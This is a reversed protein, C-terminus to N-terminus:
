KEYSLNNDSFIKLLANRLKSIDIRVNEKQPNVLLNRESDGIMFYYKLNLAKAQVIYGADHYFEPFLEFVVSNNESFIMNVLGAGHIGMILSANSFLEINEEVSQNELYYVKIGFESLLGVVEKENLLYRHTAFKRSIFIKSKRQKQTKAIKLPNYLMNIWSPMYQKQCHQYGRFNVFKWNNIFAPILLEDAQILERHSTLIIKSKDIKLLDILQNHFLKNSSLIYFDPNLGLEQILFYRGLCEILFHYYNDELSSLSLHAVKGRIKRVESKLILDKTAGILPNQEQTTLDVILRFKSDFVEEKDTFCYANKFVKVDFEPMSVSYNFFNFHKQGFVDLTEPMFFDNPPFLVLKHDCVQFSSVTEFTGFRIKRYRDLILKKIKLFSM